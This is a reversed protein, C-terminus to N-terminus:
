LNQIAKSRRQYHDNDTDAHRQLNPVAKNMSVLAASIFGKKKQLEAQQSFHLPPSLHRATASLVVVVVIPM